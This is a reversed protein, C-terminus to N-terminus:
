QPNSITDTATCRQEAREGQQRKSTPPEGSVIRFMAAMPNSIRAHPPEGDLLEILTIGLSWVDASTGYGIGSIVQHFM